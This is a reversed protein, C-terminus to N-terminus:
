IDSAALLVSEERYSEFVSEAWGVVGDDDTELVAVPMRDEDEAGLCIREDFIGIQHPVEDEYVWLKLNGTMLDKRVEEGFWESGRISAIARRDIVMEVEQEDNRIRKRGVEFSEPAVSNTLVSVESADATVEALRILPAVPNTSSARTIEADSIASLSLATENVTDLFEKYEQANKIESIYEATRDSVTKGLDTLVYGDEEKSAIGIEGLRKM